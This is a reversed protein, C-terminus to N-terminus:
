LIKKQRQFKYNLIPLEYLSSTIRWVLNDTKLHWMFAISYLFHKIKSIAWKLTLLLIHQLINTIWLFNIDDLMFDCFGNQQQQKTECM